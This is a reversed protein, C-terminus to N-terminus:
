TSLPIICALLLCNLYSVDSVIADVGKRSRIPAKACHQVVTKQAGVLNIRMPLFLSLPARWWSLWRSGGKNKDLQHRHASIKTMDGNSGGTACFFLLSFHAQNSNGQRFGTAHQLVLFRSWIESDRALSLLSESEARQCFPTRAGLSIYGIDFRYFRVINSPLSIESEHM